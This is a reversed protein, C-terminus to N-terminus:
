EEEKINNLVMNISMSTTLGLAELHKALEKAVKLAERRHYNRSNKESQLKETLQAAAIQEAIDTQGLRKLMGALTLAGAMDLHNGYKAPKKTWVAEIQSGLETSLYITESHWTSGVKDLYYNHDLHQAPRHEETEVIQKDYAPRDTEYLENVVRWSELWAKGAAEDDWSWSNMDRLNYRASSDGRRVTLNVMEEVTELRINKTM